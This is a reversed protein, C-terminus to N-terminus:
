PAAPLFPIRLRGSTRTMELWLINGVKRQMAELAYCLAAAGFTTQFTGDV